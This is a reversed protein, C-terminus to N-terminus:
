LGREKSQESLISNRVSVVKALIQDETSATIKAVELLPMQYVYTLFFAARGSLDLHQDVKFHNRRVSALKYIRKFFEFRLADTEIKSLSEPAEALFSQMVDLALQSAQLDDDVLFNAFHYCKENIFESVKAVEM